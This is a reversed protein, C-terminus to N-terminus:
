KVGIVKQIQVSLMWHVPMSLLKDIAPKYDESCPQIYKNPVKISNFEEPALPGPWVVKLSDVWWWEIKCQSAPQKPSCSVGDFYQLAESNISGNTELQTKFGKGKLLKCLVILENTNQLLPEGGTIVVLYPVGKGLEILKNVIEKPTMDVYKSHDTDCFDCKKNCGSFRVFLAQMGVLHGEGQITPGFIENVKLM